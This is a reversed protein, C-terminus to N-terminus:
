AGGAGGRERTVHQRDHLRKRWNESVSRTRENSESLVKSMCTELQKSDIKVCAANEAGNPM